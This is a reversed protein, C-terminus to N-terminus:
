EWAAKEPVKPQAKIADEIDHLLADADKGLRPLSKVIMRLESLTHQPAVAAEVPVLAAAPKGGRMVTYSEGKYKVSNLLESLTRAAETASITKPVDVGGYFIIIM